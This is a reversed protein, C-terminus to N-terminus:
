YQQEEALYEAGDEKYLADHDDDYAVRHGIQVNKPLEGKINEEVSVKYISFPSLEDKTEKVKKDVTAVFVNDAWGVLLEKDTVDFAYSNELIIVDNTKTFVDTLYYVFSVFLAFTVAIIIKKTTTM